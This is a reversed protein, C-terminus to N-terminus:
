LIQIVVQVVLHQITVHKVNLIVFKVIELMILTDKLVHQVIRPHYHYFVAIAVKMVILVNM